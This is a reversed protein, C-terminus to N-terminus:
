RDTLGGRVPALEAMEIEVETLGDRREIEVIGQQAGLSVVYTWEGRVWTSETVTWGRRAFTQRYHRRVEQASSDVVYEIETVRETGFTEQYYESPTAGPYEPLSPIKASENAHGTEVDETRAALLPAPTSVASPGIAQAISLIGILAFAWVIAGLAIVALVGAKM